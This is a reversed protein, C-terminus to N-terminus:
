LFLHIDWLRLVTMSYILSCSNEPTYHRSWGESDKIALRFYVFFAALVGLMEAYRVFTRMDFVVATELGQFHGQGIYVAPAFCCDPAKRRACFNKVPLFEPAIICSVVEYLLHM